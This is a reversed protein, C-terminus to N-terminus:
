CAEALAAGLEGQRAQQRQRAQDRRQLRSDHQAQEHAKQWRAHRALMLGALLPDQLPPLTQWAQQPDEFSSPSPPPAVAPALGPSTGSEAADGPETSVGSEARGRDDEELKAAQTRAGRSAAKAPDALLRELVALHGDLATATHLARQLHARAALHAAPRDTSEAPEAPNAGLYDLVRRANDAASHLAARDQTGEAAETCAAKLHQLAQVAEAHWRKRQAEQDIRQRMQVALQATLAAFQERAAPEVAGADLAQWARDLEVGRNVPVDAEAVLSRATEILRAAQERAQRQTVKELLRRKALQHIRRDHSRGEREAVKLAAEGDLAEVVAQKLQLPLGATRMLALLASDDGRAQALRGAWDVAPAAPAAVLTTKKAAVAPASASGSAPAQGKKRFIWGLM